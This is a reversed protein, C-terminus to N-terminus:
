VSADMISSTPDVIRQPDLYTHRICIERIDSVGVPTFDFQLVHENNRKSLLGTKLTNIKITYIYHIGLVRWELRTQIQDHDGDCGQPRSNASTNKAFYLPEATTGFDKSDLLLTRNSCQYVDADSFTSSVFSTGRIEGGHVVCPSNQIKEDFQM